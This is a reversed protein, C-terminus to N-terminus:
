EDNLGEPYVQRGDSVRYVPYPAENGTFFEHGFCYVRQGGKQSHDMFFHKKEDGDPGFLGNTETYYESKELVIFPDDQEQYAEYGHLDFHWVTSIVDRCDLKPQSKQLWFDVNDQKIIGIEIKKVGSVRM